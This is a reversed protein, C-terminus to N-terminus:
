QKISKIYTKTENVEVEFDAYLKSWDEYEPQNRKDPLNYNDQIYKSVFDTYKEAGFINVHSDNYLEFSYDLNIDKYYDNTNLFDFGNEEIIRKMYNYEMKHEKQQCYSHVIFLVTMKEQKCYDILDLFLDNVKEPIVLEDKIASYDTFDVTATDEVFDFGKLPNKTKYTFSDIPELSKTQVCNYIMYGFNAWNSHYKIFDFYYPIRESKNDISSNIMDIRNKSYKLHDVSNRIPVESYMTEKEPHEPLPEEGYQFPRLDVVWLKPQQTKKIEKMFYKIAQPTITNHAFNYSTFGYQNWARLPVWYTYCASGGIYVMDLSDPEEGYFGNINDRNVDMPRALYSLPVFSCLMLVIIVISLISTIVRKTSM